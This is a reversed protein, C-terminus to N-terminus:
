MFKDIDTIFGRLMDKNTLSTKPNNVSKRIELLFDGWLELIRSQALNPSEEKTLFAYQMMNNFAKVVNDDGILTFEFAKKKYDLSTLQKTVKQLESENSSKSLLKIYPELIESYIKRRDDHLKEQERRIKEIRSQIYWVVFGLIAGLIPPIVTQIWFM